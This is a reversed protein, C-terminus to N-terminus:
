NYEHVLIDKALAADTDSPEVDWGRDYNVVVKGDRKLMLKSIRGGDIGYQSGEDFHKVWYHFISNYVKMSGESWM